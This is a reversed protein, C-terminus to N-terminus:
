HQLKSIDAGNDQQEILSELEDREFADESDLMVTAPGKRVSLADKM